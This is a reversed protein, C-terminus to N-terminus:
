NDHTKGGLGFVEGSYFYRLIETDKLERDPVIRVSKTLPAILCIHFQVGVSKSLKSLIEEYIISKRVLALEICTM